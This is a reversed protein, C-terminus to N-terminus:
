PRNTARGFDPNANRELSVGGAPDFRNGADTVRLKALLVDVTRLTPEGSRKILLEARRSALSAGLNVFLDDYDRIPLGNVQLVVDGPRLGARAAPSNPIGNQLVGGGTERPRERVPDEAPVVGLFGYEVEEGRQLVEVIRRMNADLPVAFGGPMDIGTLASQATTIGVLKGDVDLLAGGSCGLQLRADTQ